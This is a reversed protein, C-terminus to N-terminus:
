KFGHGAPIPEFGMGEMRTMSNFASKIAYFLDMQILNIILVAAATIDFVALLFSRSVM